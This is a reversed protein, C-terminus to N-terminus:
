NNLRVKLAILTPVTDGSFVFVAMLYVSLVPLIVALFVTMIGGGMQRITQEADHISACIPCDQVNNCRHASETGVFFLSVFAILMFFVCIVMSMIRQNKRFM